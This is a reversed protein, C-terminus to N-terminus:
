DLKVYAMSVWGKDTQGWTVGEVVTTSLITVRDGRNLSGVIAFGTGAGSRIHLGDGTVTGAKSVNTNTNTNTDNSAAGDLQCYQMSIWGKNTCGWTVGNYTFQELVTVRDGKNYSGVSGYGTGPGSRINLQDGTITGTGTKTGTAGDQYVYNLSIWGDKTRGWTGSKELIEVRAGYKLSGVRTASQDANARVNLESATVIGRFQVTTSGNGTITVTPKEDTKDDEDKNNNTNGNSNSGTTNVYDMKIWGKNTRGWGNKTELITVVDGKNYAGQVKGTTTSPESRINLVNANIVGKINTETKDDKNEEPKTEGAPTDTNDDPEVATPIDMQIYEADVWGSEPSIIYVWEKGLVDDRRKIEIRDGAYLTGIITGEMSPMSRINLQNLVTATNENIVPAETTEVPAETEAPESIDLNLNFQPESTDEPAPAKKCGAFLTTMMVLALVLSLTRSLKPNISFNM